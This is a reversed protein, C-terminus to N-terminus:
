VQSPHYENFRGSPLELAEKYLAYHPRVASLHYPPRETDLIIMDPPPLDPREVEGLIRWLGSREVIVIKKM